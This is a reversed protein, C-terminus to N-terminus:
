SDAQFWLRLRRYPHTERDLFLLLEVQQDYSAAPLEWSLQGEYREGPGLTIPDYRRLQRRQAAGWRDQTWIEIRYRRPGQEHNVVGVDVAARDGREATQPYDQAQGDPGLIYFETLRSGPATFRLATLSILALLLVIMASAVIHRPRIPWPARARPWAWVQSFPFARQAPALRVRRLLVFSSAAVLVMSLSFFIPQPAIGWSTQNLVLALLPILAASIGSSLALREATRLSDSHPFIALTICYGPAFLVFALGLAVRLLALPPSLAAQAFLVLLTFAGAFILWLDYTIVRRGAVPEDELRDGMRMTKDQTM